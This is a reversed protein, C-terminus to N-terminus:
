ESETQSPRSEESIQRVGRKRRKPAEVEEPILNKKEISIRSKAVSVSRSNKIV